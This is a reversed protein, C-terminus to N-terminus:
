QKGAEALSSRDQISHLRAGKDIRKVLGTLVKGPGCEVYETTGQEKLWQVTLVWQVSSYIQEVMKARIEDPGGHPRGTVNSVVPLRAPKFAIGKVVAAFKDAAPRMLKSHFAGAVNLPLVKKLGMERALKEAAAIGDATGSLVTQEPSNFNAMEVGSGACIKELADREAGIVALMGGKQAVCAEQMFRGRAELIKLADEFEVVGAVHLATWEGSSLGAAYDFGIGPQQLQLATWCAMSAVFIGPQAHASVTLKEIPGDFCIAALDYGLVSSARDFLARCEPIAEAFDKGMGVAQAGQGPFLIARKSM